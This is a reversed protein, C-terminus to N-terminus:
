RCHRHRHHEADPEHAAHLLAVLLRRASCSACSTTRSRARGARTSTRSGSPAWATWAGPSSSARSRSTACRSGGCTFAVYSLGMVALFMILKTTTGMAYVALDIFNTGVARHLRRRSAAPTTSSSRRASSTSRCWDRVALDRDLAHVRRPRPHRLPQVPHHDQGAAEGRRRHVLHLLRVRLLWSSPSWSASRTSWNWTTPMAQGAAKASAPPHLGRLEISGYARRDNWSRWSTPAAILHDPRPRHRRLRRHRLVHRGEAHARLDQHRLGRLPVGVINFSRRSRRVSGSAAAVVAPRAASGTWGIYNSSSRRPGPRGDLPALM